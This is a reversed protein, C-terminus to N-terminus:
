IFCHANIRSDSSVVDSHDFIKENYGTFCPERGYEAQRQLEYHM